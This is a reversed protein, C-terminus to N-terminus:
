ISRNTFRIYPKLKEHIAELIIVDGKNHDLIYKLAKTDGSTARIWFENDIRTKGKIGLARCANELSNYNLKLRSRVAFYLDQHTIQKYVPFDVGIMLARTRIFPIDFRCGNYTYIVDFQEMAKILSKVTRQDYPFHKWDEKTLVDSIIDGKAEKICWSYIMGFNADLNSTEIDLYGIRATGLDTVHKVYCARHELGDHRHQCRFDVPEVFKKTKM